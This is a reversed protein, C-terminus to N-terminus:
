NLVEFCQLFALNFDHSWFLLKLLMCVCGALYLIVLPPAPAPAPATTFSMWALGNQRSSSTVKPLTRSRCRVRGTNTMVVVLTTKQHGQTQPKNVHIENRNNDFVQDPCETLITEMSYIMMKILFLFFYLIEERGRNIFVSRSFFLM